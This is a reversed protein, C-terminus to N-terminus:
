SLVRCYAKMLREFLSGSVIRKSIAAIKQAPPGVVYRMRPSPAAIIREVTRAFLMPDAGGTESDVYVGLTRRFQAAYAGGESRRAIIRHATMETRFDGPEVLVVHVGFPALELRLGETLGEVAFKSASYFAQFPMGVLGALSSVNIIKGARRERMHPLVAQIVRVTGFFNTELQLKAEEISTDEVSGSVEIGANNVAVDIRGADAVIGDIAARVSADDGVDMRVMAYPLRSKAPKRSTGYVRMGRASLLTATARGFGSSAGTILVVPKTASM